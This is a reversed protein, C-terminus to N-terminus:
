QREFPKGVVAVRSLSRRKAVVPTSDRRQRGRATVSGGERLRALLLAGIRREENGEVVRRRFAVLVRPDCGPDDREWGLLDKGDLRGRVADAAHRDSLDELFPVVSVLARRWPAEAPQGKRPSVDAGDEDTSIKGKPSAM